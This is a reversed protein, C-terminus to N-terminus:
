GGAMLRVMTLRSVHGTVPLGRLRQFRRIAARTRKDFKGDVRGPDAGIQALRKEIVLRAPGISVIQKEEARARAVEDANQADAQLQRLRDRAAPAFGSDPYDKLFSQYAGASNVTRAADWADREARETRARRAEEMEELRAEAMDAFAGDPYRELYQRLGAEDGGEGTDRWYARDAREKERQAERAEAELVEGRERAADRLRLLQNGNLYGTEEFGQDRQWDSIATRSGPGFLGDIGRPDFGLLALDRQVERRAERSLDLADEAEEAQREPATQVWDLRERAAARNAGEPYADLYVGYAEKTDIALVAAWFGREEAAGTDTGFGDGILGAQESLFGSFAVGDPAERAVQALSKGPDLLGRALTEALAGAPGTAYTVDPEPRLETLGPALGPGLTDLSRGPAILIAAPGRAAAAMDSLAGLSVGTVGVSLASAGPAGNSLVWTDRASSALPGTVVIVLRDIGDEALATELEQAALRLNGSSRNKPQLIEFGAERLPGAFDAASIDTENRLTALQGTDGLILAMDAAAAMQAAVLPALVLGGISRLLRM